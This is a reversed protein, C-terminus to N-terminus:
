LVLKLIQKTDLMNLNKKIFELEDEQEVMGLYKIVKQRSAKKKKDWVNEVLYAYRGNGCKKIRIFM